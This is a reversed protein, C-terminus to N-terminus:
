GDENKKNCLMCYAYLSLLHRVPAEMPHGENLLKNHREVLSSYHDQNEKLFEVVEAADIEPKLIKRLAYNISYKPMFFVAVQNEPVGFINSLERLTFSEDMPNAKSLHSKAYKVLRSVERNAETEEQIPVANFAGLYPENARLYLSFSEVSIQWEQLIGSNLPRKWSVLYGDRCAQQLEKKSFWPNAPIKLIQNISVSSYNDTM